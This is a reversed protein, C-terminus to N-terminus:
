LPNVVVTPLCNKIIKLTFNNSTIVICDLIVTVYLADSLTTLSNTNCTSRPLCHLGAVTVDHLVDPKWSWSHHWRSIINLANLGMVNRRKEFSFRNKQQWKHRGFPSALAHDAAVHHELNITRLFVMYLSRIFRGM